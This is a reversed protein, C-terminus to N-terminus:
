ASYIHGISGWVKYSVHSLVTIDYFSTLVSKEDNVVLRVLFEAIYYYSSHQGVSPPITHTVKSKIQYSIIHKRRWISATYFSAIINFVVNQYFTFFVLLLYTSILKVIKRNSEVDFTCLTSLSIWGGLKLILLYVMRVFVGYTSMTEVM